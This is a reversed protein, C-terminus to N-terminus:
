RRTFPGTAHRHRLPHLFVPLSTGRPRHGPRRSRRALPDDVPWPEAQGEWRTLPPYAVSFAVPRSVRVRSRPGRTSEPADIRVNEAEARPGARDEIMAALSEIRATYPGRGAHAGLLLWRVRSEPFKQRLRDRSTIVRPDGLAQGVTAFEGLYHGPRDAILRARCREPWDDDPGSETIALTMLADRLSRRGDHEAEWALRPLDEAAM